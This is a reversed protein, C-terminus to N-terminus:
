FNLFDLRVKFIEKFQQVTLRVYGPEPQHNPPGYYAHYLQSNETGSAELDDAEDAKLDHALEDADLNTLDVVADPELKSEFQESASSILEATSSVKGDKSDEDKKLKRIRLSRLVARSVPKVYNVVQEDDVKTPETANGTTAANSVVTDSKTSETQDAPKDTDSGITVLESKALQEGETSSSSEQATTSRTPPSRTSASRTSTSRTSSIALVEAHIRNSRRSNPEDQQRQRRLTSNSRTSASYLLTDGLYTNGNVTRLNKFKPSKVYVLREGYKQGSDFKADLLQKEDASSSVSSVVSVVAKQEPLTEYSKKTQEESTLIESQYQGDSLRNPVSVVKEATNSPLDYVRDATKVESKPETRYDDTYDNAKESKTDYATSLPPQYSVQEQYSSPQQYVIPQQYSSPQQYSTQYSGQLISKRAEEYAAINAQEESLQEKSDQQVSKQSEVPQAYSQDNSQSDAQPYSSQAPYSSQSPYSSQIPYSSQSPYGSSQEYSPAPLNSPKVYQYNTAPVRRGYEEIEKMQTTYTDKEQAPTEIQQVYSQTPPQYTDTKQETKPEEPKAYDQKVYETTIQQIQPLAPEKVQEIPYAAGKVEQQLTYENGGKVDQQVEPAPYEEGVKMQEIVQPSDNVVPYQSTDPPPLDPPSYEQHIVYQPEKYADGYSEAPQKANLQQLIMKEDEVYGSKEQEIKPYNDAGGAPGYPAPPKQHSIPRESYSPIQKEMIPMENPGMPYSGDSSVHISTIPVVLPLHKQNAILHIM